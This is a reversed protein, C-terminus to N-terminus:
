QVGNADRLRTAHDIEWPPAEKAGEKLFHDMWRVLRLAYDYRGATRANGHGEGPYYVLRVPTETRVKVHRYMEMSQAPHVRPDEAGHMILLPTKVKGAHYIPSRELMWQWNEWPWSRSHVNYMEVPIDTTGFKSVQDSIGVFAVAAAFHETLASAAWMSAFGGYSGGTVGTREGDALGAEVLHTKADVFDDFEAGAYDHQGLKSFEVGRGTSGRYNPLAVIYGQAALAQAPRSYNAMWGNSFHAEPGGHIILVLPPAGFLPKDLPHVVVMELELGDRATYRVVEQRALQREALVPNSDTLRQPASGPRLLYVEPPHVPSEAVAAAVPQGPRADVQRLIVGSDPAPGAPRIDALWARGQESWVGRSGIWAVSDADQWWFDEVQGAYAPVLDTREGGRASAVYLRGASPDHMDEGGIWAIREGDPSWHFDGLKGKLGLQNRIKGNEPSVVFLDSHMYEDDILPTPAMRVALHEGDPSWELAIASGALELPEATGADLDLLWVRLPTEAEEYVQARFGKEALKKDIDPKPDKALFALTRGDPSPRLSKVASRATYVVEAEGGDLPMRHIDAFDAKLDRKGVFFLSRGDTAWAVDSVSVKGSFYPRSVGELDVVHLQSYSSGDDDKYLDRPVALLYAVADGNPSLAARSVSKLGVIDELTLGSDDAGASFSTMLALCVALWGARLHLPFHVTKMPEKGCHTIALPV